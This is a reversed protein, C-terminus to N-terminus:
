ARGFTVSLRVRLTGMPSWYSHLPRSRPKRQKDVVDAVKGPSYAPGKKTIESDWICLHLPLDASHLTLPAIQRLANLPINAMTWIPRMPQTALRWEHCVLSLTHAASGNEFVCSWFIKQLLETPLCSVPSAALACLRQQRFVYNYITSLRNKSHAVQALSSDLEALRDILGLAHRPRASPPQILLIPTSNYINSQCLTELKDFLDCLEALVSDLEFTM